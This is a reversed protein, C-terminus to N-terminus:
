PHVLENMLRVLHEAHAAWTHRALVKNRGSNAMARAREPNDLLAEVAASFRTVDGPPVLVVDTGDDLLAGINDTATTITPKGLALYEFVKLPDLTFSGRSADHASPRFPAVCLEARALWRPVMEYPVAGTFVFNERVGRAAALAEIRSREPGDGVLLFRLNREPLACAAEVLLELDHWRKLSGAYGLTAGAFSPLLEEGVPECDPRFLEANAGWSVPVWKDRV